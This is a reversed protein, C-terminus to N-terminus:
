SSPPSPPAGSDGTPPTGSWTQPPSAAPPKRRAFYLALILFIV